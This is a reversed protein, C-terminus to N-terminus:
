EAVQAFVAHPLPPLIAPVPAAQPMPELTALLAAFIREAGARGSLGGGLVELGPAAGLDVAPRGQAAAITAAPTTGLVLDAGRDRLLRVLDAGDAALKVGAAGLDARFAEPPSDTVIVEVQWGLTERLFRALPGARLSGDAVVVRRPTLAALRELVADFRWGQHARERALYAEAAADLPHGLRDSLRRVLAEAAEAGVPLGDAVLVPIGHRAALVEAPAVGWPAVVLSISAGAAADLAALGGEPGFIPNARLGVGELLRSLTELESLWHPDLGPAIGFLTVLPRDARTPVPEVHALLGALLRAYGEHAPGHFGATQVAVVREGQGTLEKVMAGVDDGIMEAPCGTLVALAGGEIVALANKMEERLRSTGGFVVHKDAMNTSAIRPLGPPAGYRGGGASLGARLACGPTSHVVPILGPIAAAAHIAGHLACGGFPFLTPHGM